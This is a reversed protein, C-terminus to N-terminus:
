AEVEALVAPSAVQPIPGDANQLDDIGIDTVPDPQSLADTRILGKKTIAKLEAGDIVRIRESETAATPEWHWLAGHDLRVGELPFYTDHGLFQGIVRGDPVEIQREATTIDGSLLTLVETYALRTM